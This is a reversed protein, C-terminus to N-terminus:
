ACVTVCICMNEKIKFKIPMKECNGKKKEGSKRRIKEDRLYFVFHFYDISLSFLSVSVSFSSTLGVPRHVWDMAVYRCPITRSLLM